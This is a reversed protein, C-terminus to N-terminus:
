KQNYKRHKNKWSSLKRSEQINDNRRNDNRSNDNRSNDNRRNDNRRNDNRRNDNRRNDNRRNDNRRNDNRRNNHELQRVVPKTFEPFVPVREEHKLLVKPGNKEKSFYFYENHTYEHIYLTGYKKEFLFTPENENAPQHGYYYVSKWIYGKNNPMNKLNRSMYEPLSDESRCFHKYAYRENRKQSKIDYRIKKESKFFGDLVKKEDKKKERKKEMKRKFSIKERNHKELRESFRKEIEEVMEQSKNKIQSLQLNYDNIKEIMQDVNKQNREIIERHCQNKISKQLNKEANKLHRSLEDRKQTIEQIFEKQIVEKTIVSSM